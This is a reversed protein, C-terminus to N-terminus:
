SRIFKSSKLSCHRFAELGYTLRDTALDASCNFNRKSSSTSSEVPVVSVHKLCSTQVYSGLAMTLSNGPSQDRSTSCGRTYQRTPRSGTLVLPENWDISRRLTRLREAAYPCSLPDKTGM